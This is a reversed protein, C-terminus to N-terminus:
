SRVAGKAEDRMNFTLLSIYGYLRRYRTVPQTMSLHCGHQPIGLYVIQLPFNRTSHRPHLASPRVPARPVQPGQPRCSTPISTQIPFDYASLTVRVGSKLGGVAPPSEARAVSHTAGQSNCGSTWRGRPPGVTDSPLVWWTILPASLALSHHTYRYCLALALM